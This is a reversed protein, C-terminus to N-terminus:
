EEGAPLLCDHMYADHWLRTLHYRIVIGDGYSTHTRIQLRYPRIGDHGGAPTDDRLWRLTLKDARSHYYAHHASIRNKRNFFNFFFGSPACTNLAIAHILAYRGSHRIGVGAVVEFAQCGELKPTLDHWEGDAPLRDAWQAGARGQAGIVGNVDLAHRPTTTNIGARGDPTFTLLPEADAVTGNGDGAHRNVRLLDSDPQLSVSWLPRTPDSDRYFTMLRAHTDLAAIKLGQEPTKDFGEEIKNVSSDILDSFHEASPMAGQRFYNKLTGRNRKAM